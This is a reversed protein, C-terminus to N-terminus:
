LCMAFPLPINRLYLMNRYNGTDLKQPPSFVPNTSATWWAPIASEGGQTFLLPSIYIYNTYHSWSTEHSQLWQPFVV